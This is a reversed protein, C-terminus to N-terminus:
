AEDSRKNELDSPEEPNARKDHLGGYIAHVGTKIENKILILETQLEVNEQKLPKIIEEHLKELWVGAQTSSSSMEIIAAVCIGYSVKDRYMSLIRAFKKKNM